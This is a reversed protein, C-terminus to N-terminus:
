HSATPETAKLLEVLQNKWLTAWTHSGHGRTAVTAPLLVFRGHALRNAQAEAIGLEPPNIFDDASNIWLIPATITGLAASPDYDSSAGVQYLLDNADLSPLSAAMYEGVRRDAADRTPWESQWWLPASGAIM